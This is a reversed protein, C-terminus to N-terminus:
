VYPTTPLTLHTYSVPAACQVHTKKEYDVLRIVEYEDVTLAVPEGAERGCPAFSDFAPEACVRRCRSPRAM